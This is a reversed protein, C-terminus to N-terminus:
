LAIFLLSYILVVQIIIKSTYSFLILLVIFYLSKNYSLSSFQVQQEKFLYSLVTHGKLNYFHVQRDKERTGVMSKPQPKTMTTTTTTTATTTTDKIQTRERLHQITFYIQLISYEL